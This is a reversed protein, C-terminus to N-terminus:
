IKQNAIGIMAAIIKFDEHSLSCLIEYAEQASAHNLKKFVAYIRPNTSAMGYIEKLKVATRGSIVM